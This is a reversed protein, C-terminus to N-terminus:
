LRDFFPDFVQESLHRQLFLGALEGGQVSILSHQSVFKGCRFPFIRDPFVSDGVYVFVQVSQFLCFPGIWVAFVGFRDVDYLAPEHFLCAEANRDVKGVFADVPQVMVLRSGQGSRDRDSAGPVFCQDALRSLDGSAFGFGQAVRIDVGRDEVHCTVRTPAAYQFAVTFVGIEDGGESLLHHFPYLFVADGRCQLVIGNVTNGFAAPVPIRTGIRMDGRTFHVFKVQKRVPFDYAFRMRHTYHAAVVIVIAHRDACTVIEQGFQEALLVTEPSIDNRVTLGDLEDM